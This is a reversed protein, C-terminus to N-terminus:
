IEPKYAKSLNLMVSFVCANLLSHLLTMKFHTHVQVYNEKKGGINCFVELMILFNNLKKFYKLIISQHIFLGFIQVSFFNMWLTQSIMSMFYLVFFMNSTKKKRTINLNISWGFIKGLKPPPASLWWQELSWLHITANLSGKSYKTGSGHLNRFMETVEGLFEHEDLLIVSITIGVWWWELLIATGWIIQIYVSDLLIFNM